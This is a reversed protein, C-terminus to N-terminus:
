SGTVVSFIRFFYRIKMRSRTTETADTCDTTVVDFFCSVNCVGMIVNQQQKGKDRNIDFATIFGFLKSFKM